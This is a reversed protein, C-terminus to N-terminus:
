DRLSVPRDLIERWIIGTRLSGAPLTTRRPPAEALPARIAQDFRRHDELRWERNRREAAAIRRQVLAEAEQDNAFVEREPRSPAVELSVVEAERELTEIDEVQEEWSAEHAPGELTATAAEEGQRARDLEGRMEALLDEFTEARQTSRRHERPPQKPGERKGKEAARGVLSVVIWLVALLIPGIEM